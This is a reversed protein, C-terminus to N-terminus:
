HPAPPLRVPPSSSLLLPNHVFVACTTVRPSALAHTAKRNTHQEHEYHVEEPSGTERRGFTENRGFAENRGFIRSDRFAENCDFGSIALLTEGRGLSDEDLVSCVDVM